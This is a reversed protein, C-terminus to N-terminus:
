LEGHSTEYDLVNGGVIMFKWAERQVHRAWVAAGRPVVDFPKIDTMIKASESGVADRVIMSLETM